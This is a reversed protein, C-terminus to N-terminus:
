KHKHSSVRFDFAQKAPYSAVSHKHYYLGFQRNITDIPNSSIDCDVLVEPKATLGPVRVDNIRPNELQTLRADMQRSYSLATGNILDRACQYGASRVFASPKLTSFLFVFAALSLIIKKSRRWFLDTGDRHSSRFKRFFDQRVLWGCCYFLCFAVLWFYSYYVADRLRGPGAHSMAYYAPTNQAAFLLFACLMALGPMRFQCLCGKAARCLIPVLLIFLAITAFTSWYRIDVAAKAFSFQIASLVGMKHHKAQRFANGPARVSILFGTLLIIHPLIVRFFAHRRRLLCYGGLATGGLATVLAAVFNGGGLILALALALLLRPWPRKDSGHILLLLADFYLLMLAYYFTYYVAGNFWYFAEVVSPVYQMSCFLMAASFILASRRPQRLLVCFLTNSFRFTAFILSGMVLLSGIAYFRAGFVGPQLSMLFLASYTGQWTHYTWVVMSVAANLIDLLSGGSRLAAYVSRGYGLDDGSPRDYITIIMMPLVTAAFAALTLLAARRKIFEIIRQM